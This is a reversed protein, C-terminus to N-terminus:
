RARARRASGISPWASRIKRGGPMQGRRLSISEKADPYQERFEDRPMDGVVFCFQRDEGTPLQIAPDDYM